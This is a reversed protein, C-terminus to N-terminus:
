FLNEEVRRHERSVDGWGTIFFLNVSSFCIEGFLNPTSFKFM